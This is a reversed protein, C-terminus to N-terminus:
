QKRSRGLAPSGGLHSHGLTPLHGLHSLGLGSHGLHSLGLYEEELASAGGARRAAPSASVIDGHARLAARLEVVQQEM